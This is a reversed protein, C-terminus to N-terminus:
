DGNEEFKNGENMRNRKGMESILKPMRYLDHNAFQTNLFRHPNLLKQTFWQVASSILSTLQAM